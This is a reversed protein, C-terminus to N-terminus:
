RCTVWIQYLEYLKGDAIIPGPAMVLNRGESTRVLVSAHYKGKMYLAVAEKASSAYVNLFHTTLAPESQRPEYSPNVKVIEQCRFLTLEDLSAANVNQGLVGSLLAATFIWTKM